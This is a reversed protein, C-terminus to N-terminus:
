GRIRVLVAEARAVAIAAAARNSADAALVFAREALTYAADLDAGPIEDVPMELLEPRDRYALDVWVIHLKARTIAVYEINLEEQPPPGPPRDPDSPAQRAFTQKLLFVCEAELGKARHVTSLVVGSKTDSLISTLLRRLRSPPAYRLAALLMARQEDIEERRSTAGIQAAKAAEREHWALLSERFGQDSKLDLVRDLLHYLPELIVQGAHLRFKLGARWLFLACDLLPANARSLVFTHVETSLGQAIKFPLEGLACTEEYGEDADPWARLQPVLENAARVVARSCRRTMTLPFRKAGRREFFRWVEAGLSGRWGYIQQWSDGAAIWRTKLLTLRQLLELQPASIDQVEDLMIAQYKSPPALGLVIPLWVMDCFDISTRRTMDTGAVIARGAIHAVRDIQAHTLKANFLKQAFGLQVLVDPDWGVWAPADVRWGAAPSLTEKACRVLRVASSHVEFPAKGGAAANVLEETPTYKEIIVDPFHKVVISRGIAHLTQVVVARGPTKPKRQQAEDAIGKGFAAFLISRQRMVEILMLLTTTKTCGALAEILIDGTGMRGEDLIATQEDTPKV